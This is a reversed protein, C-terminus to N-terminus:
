YAKGVAGVQQLVPSLIPSLMIEPHGMYGDGAGNESGNGNSSAEDYLLHKKVPSPPLSSGYPPYVRGQQGYVVQQQQQQQQLQHAQKQSQHAQQQQARVYEQLQAYDYSQAVSFSQHPHHQSQHQSHPYYGQQRQQQQQQQQQLAYAQAYQADTAVSLYRQEGDNPMMAGTAYQLPPREARQSTAQSLEPHRKPHQHQIAPTSDNSQPQDQPSNVIVTPVPVPVPTPLPSQRPSISIIAPSQAAAQAMQDLFTAEPSVGVGSSSTPKEKNGDEEDRDMTVPSNGVRNNSGTITFSNDNNYNKRNDNGSNYFFGTRAKPLSISRSRKSLKSSLAGM